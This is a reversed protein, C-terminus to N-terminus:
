CAVQRTRAVSATTAAPMKSTIAAPHRQSGWRDHAVPRTMATAAPNAQAPNATQATRVDGPKREPSGSTSQNDEFAPALRPMAERLANGNVLGAAGLWPRRDPLDRGHRRGVDAAPLLAPGRRFHLQRLRPM